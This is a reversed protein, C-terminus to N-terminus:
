PARKVEAWLPAGNRGDETSKATMTAKFVMGTSLEISHTMPGNMTISLGPDGRLASEIVAVRTGEITDIKVLKCRVPIQKGENTSTGEWTDGVRVRGTPFSVGFTTTDASAQGPALGETSSSVWKGTSDMVTRTRLKKLEALVEAPLAKGESQVRDFTTLFTVQDGEVKEALMSFGMVMTAKPGSGIAVEYSLKSGQKPALKLVCSEVEDWASSTSSGSSGYTPATGRKECAGLLVAGMLLVMFRM